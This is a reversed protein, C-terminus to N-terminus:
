GVHLKLNTVLHHALALYIFQTNLRAQMHIHEQILRHYFVDKKFVVSNTLFLGPHFFNQKEFINRINLYGGLKLCGGTQKELKYGDCLKIHPTLFIGMLDYNENYGFAYLADVIPTLFPTYDISYNLKIISAPLQLLNLGIFQNKDDKGYLELGSFVVMITLIKKIMSAPDKKSNHM